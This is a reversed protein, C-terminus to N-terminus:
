GPCGSCRSCSRYNYCHVETWSYCLVQCDAYMQDTISNSLRDAKGLEAVLTNQEAALKQQLQLLEQDRLGGEGEEQGLGTYESYEAGEELQVVVRERDLDRGGPVFGPAPAMYIKDDQEKEPSKNTARGVTDSDSTLSATSKFTSTSASPTSALASDPKNIPKAASKSQNLTDSNGQTFKLLRNEKEVKEMEEVLRKQERDFETEVEDDEPCDIDSDESEEGASSKKAREDAWKSALKPLIGPANKLSDSVEKTFNAKSKSNATNAGADVSDVRGKARSAIDAFIDSRKNFKTMRELLLDADPNSSKTTNGLVNRKEVVASSTSDKVLTELKNVDEKSNFVDSFLDDEEVDEAKSAAEDVDVFDDDDSSSSTDSMVAVEEKAKACDIGIKNEDDDSSNVEIAEEKVISLGLGGSRNSHIASTTPILIIEDDDEDDIEDDSEVKLLVKNEKKIMNLIEQQSAEGSTLSLAIAANLEEDDDEGSMLERVEDKDLKTVKESSEGCSSGAVAEAEREGLGSMFIIGADSRSAMRRSETKMKKIGVKDGVFLKSDMVEMQSNGLDEKVDDLKAQIQRRRKLRELQFGSFDEAQRPMQHMTAWSNQKKKGKLDNLVEYQVHKPLSAFEPSEVDVQYVDHVDKLGVSELIMDTESDSDESSELKDEEENVPMEPLEFLDKEKGAHGRIM